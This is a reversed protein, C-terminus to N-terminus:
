LIHAINIMRRFIYMYTSVSSLVDLVIKYKFIFQTQVKILLDQTKLMNKTLDEIEFTQM